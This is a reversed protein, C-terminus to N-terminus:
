GKVQLPKAASQSNGINGGNARASMAMQARRALGVPSQWYANMIKSRQEKWEPTAMMAKRKQSMKAKFDPDAWMELRKKQINDRYEPKAWNAKSAQSVKEIFEPNNQANQVLKNIMEAKFTEDAWREKMQKSVRQKNKSSSAWKKTSAIYKARTEPNQWAQRIMEGRKACGEESWSSYAMGKIKMEDDSTILNFVLRGSQIIEDMLAYEKELLDAKECAISLTYRMSDIGYKNCAYQLLPNPHKNKALNHKHVRLRSPVNVSAGIYVGNNGLCEIMYIGCKEM